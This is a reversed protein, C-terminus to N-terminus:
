PQKTTPKTSSSTRAWEEINETVAKKTRAWEEINETVMKKVFPRVNAASGALRKLTAYEEPSVEIRIQILRAM